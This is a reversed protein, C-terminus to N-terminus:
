NELYHKVQQKETELFIKSQEMESALEAPTRGELIMEEIKRCTAAFKNMGFVLSASVLSHHIIRLGDLDNKAALEAIKPMDADTKHLYERFLFLMKERGFIDEYQRLRERDITETM